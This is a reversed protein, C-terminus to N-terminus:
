SQPPQNRADKAAQLLHVSLLVADGHTLLFEASANNSKLTLVVHEAGAGCKFSDIAIPTTRSPCVCGEAWQRFAEPTMALELRDGADTEIDMQTGDDTPRCRPVGVVIIRDNRM